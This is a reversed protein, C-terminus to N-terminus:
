FLHVFQVIRHQRGQQFRKSTGSRGQDFTLSDRERMSQELEKNAGDLEGGAPPDTGRLEAELLKLLIM